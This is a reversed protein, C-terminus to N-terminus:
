YRYFDARIRVRDAKPYAITRIRTFVTIRDHFDRADVEGWRDNRALRHGAADLVMVRVRAHWDRRGANSVHFVWRLLKTDRRDSRASRIEDPDPRNELTVSHITLPGNTLGVPAEGDRPMAIVATQSQYPAADATAAVGTLAVALVPALAGFVIRRM